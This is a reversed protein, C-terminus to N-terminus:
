EEAQQLPKSLDLFIYDPTQEILAYQKMLANAEDDQTTTVYYRAGMEIKKQIDHGLPWGRRNTQFLFATDGQYPAIVLADAPTSRDVAQGARVMALNRVEFFDKIHYWSYAWSFVGIVVVSLIAGWREPSSRTRRILWFAGLAWLWSVLPLLLIQYYDHQVNGSAFVVLYGLMGATLGLVAGYQQIWLVLFRRAASAEKNKQKPTRLVLTQILGFFLLPAGWYGFMLRGIRDGFLWRWWAPMLRIGNGNLLQNTVPIGTPFQQIWERWWLLPLASSAFLAAAM